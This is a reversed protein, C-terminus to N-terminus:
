MVKSSPDTCRSAEVEDNDDQVDKINVKIELAYQIMADDDVSDREASETTGTGDNDDGAALCSSTSSLLLLVFVLVDVDFEMLETM